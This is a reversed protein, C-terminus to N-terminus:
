KGLECMYSKGIVTVLIENGNPKLTARIFGNYSFYNFDQVFESDDYQVLTTIGPYTNVRIEFPTIQITTNVEEWEGIENMSLNCNYQQAQGLLPLFIFFLYKM